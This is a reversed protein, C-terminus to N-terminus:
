PLKEMNHSDSECYSIRHDTPLICTRAARTSDGGRQCYAATFFLARIGISPGDRLGAISAFVLGLHHYQTICYSLLTNHM